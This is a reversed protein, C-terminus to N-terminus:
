TELTLGNANAAIDVIEGGADRIANEVAYRTTAPALAIMCDGGGAGSLKAGWAGAKIAANVMNDLMPTSVELQKLLEHNRTMLTGFASFNDTNLYECGTLVLQGIENYIAEVKSKQTRYLDKVQNILTTTDAKVGSYGVILPLSVVNLPKLTKGGKVYHLTKGFVAAAIDFGSGTGQVNLVIEYGHHFLESEALPISHILSLAKLVATTVASSSGFGMKHSFDSMTTIKLHHNINYRKRFYRLTESLFTSEKVQPTEIIDEDQTLIEVTVFLRQNVATVISPYGYVVAHEGLLMLKGPASVTIHKM